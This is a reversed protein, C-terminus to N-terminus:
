GRKPPKIVCIELPILFFTILGTIWVLTSFEYGGGLLPDRLLMGALGAGTMALSVVANVSIILTKIM